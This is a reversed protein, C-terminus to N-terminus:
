RGRKSFVNRMKYKLRGLFYKDDIASGIMWGIFGILTIALIKLIVEYFLVTTAVIVFLISLLVRNSIYGFPTMYMRM